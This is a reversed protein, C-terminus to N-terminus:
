IEPVIWHPSVCHGGDSDQQEGICNQCESRGRKGAILIVPPSVPIHVRWISHVRWPTPHAACELITVLAISLEVDPGIPAPTEFSLSAIKESVRGARRPALDGLLCFQDNWCNGKVDDQNPKEPSKEHGQSPRDSGPDSSLQEARAPLEIAALRLDQPGFGM